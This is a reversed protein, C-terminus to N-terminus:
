KKPPKQGISAYLEELSMEQPPRNLNLKKASSGDPRLGTTAAQSAVNKITQANKQGATEQVLEMYGEVFERYSSNGNVITNTQPDYGSMRLYWENISDAVAPHFEPSEPDLIPYKKEIIPADIKLSTKWDLFEAQKLGESYQAQGEARRDAELQRIVEPDEINFEAKYDLADKRQSPAPEPRTPPHGYKKLLSQIRLTERRSPPKEEPAEESEVAPTEEPKEEESEPTEVTEVPPTEEAPESPTPEPVVEEEKPEPQIPEDTAAM